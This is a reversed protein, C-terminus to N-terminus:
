TMRLHAVHGSDIASKNADNLIAQRAVPCRLYWLQGVCRM